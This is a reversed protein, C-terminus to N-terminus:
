SKVEVDAFAWVSDASRVYREITRGMCKCFTACDLPHLTQRLLGLREEAVAALRDARCRDCPEDAYLRDGCRECKKIVLNFTMGGVPATVVAEYRRKWEDARATETVVRAVVEDFTGRELNHEKLVDFLTKHTWAFPRSLFDRAFRVTHENAREHEKELASILKEIVDATLFSLGEDDDLRSNAEAILAEVDSM